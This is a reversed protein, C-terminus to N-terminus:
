SRPDSETRRNWASVGVVADRAQGFAFALGVRFPHAVSRDDRDGTAPLCCWDRPGVGWLRGIPLPDLFQQVGDPPVVVLGDPKEVDSAIKALFKNPPWGGVSAVLSLETRIEQKIRRGIAAGDGFLHESGTVDLFAEDLSLPEVLPTYARLDRSNATFDRRLAADASAARGGAPLATQGGRGVHRM